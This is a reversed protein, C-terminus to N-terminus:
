TLYKGVRGSVKPIDTLTPLYVVVLPNFESKFDLDLSTLYRARAHKSHTPTHTYLHTPIYTPIHYIHTHPTPNHNGHYTYDLYHQQTFSLENSTRVVYWHQSLFNYRYKKGNEGKLINKDERM